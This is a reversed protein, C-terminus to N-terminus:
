EGSYVRTYQIVLRGEDDSSTEVSFVDGREVDHDRTISAPISIDM